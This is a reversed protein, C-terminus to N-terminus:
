LDNSYNQKVFKVMCGEICYLPGAPNLQLTDKNIKYNYFQTTTDNNKIFNVKVSDTIVYSSYEAFETGLLRGGKNFVVYKGSNPQEAIWLGVAGTSTYRSVVRWRGELPAGIGKDEKKCSTILVIVATSLFLFVNKM